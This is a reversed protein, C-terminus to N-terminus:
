DVVINYNNKNVKVIEIEEIEEKQVNKRQLYILLQNLLAEM